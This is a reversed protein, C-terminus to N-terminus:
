EEWDEDYDAEDFDYDEDDYEDEDYEDYDEEDYDEDYDEEDEYYDEEEDDWRMSDQEYDDEYEYEDEYDYDYEEDYDRAPRRREHDSEPYYDEESYEDEIFDVELEEGCYRCELDDRSVLEGCEPCPLMDKDKDVDGRHVRAEPYRQKDERKRRMFVFIIILIILVLNIIGMIGLIYLWPLDEDDKKDDKSPDPKGDGNGDLPRDTIKTPDTNALYEEYNSYGDGDFDDNKRQTLNGFYDLEWNDDLDDNDLDIFTQNGDGNDSGNTDNNTDPEWTLNIVKWNSSMGGRGDRAEVTINFIGSSAYKHRCSYEQTTLNSDDGFDWIFTLVDGDEDHINTITCNVTLNTIKVNFMPTTPPDVIDIVTINIMQEASGGNGDDVRITVHHFGV